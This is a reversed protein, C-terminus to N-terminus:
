SVVNSGVRWNPRGYGGPWPHVEQDNFYVVAALQPFDPDIATVANAWSAVYASDGSYGLEAVV